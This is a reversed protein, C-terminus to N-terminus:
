LIVENFSMDLDYIEVRNRGNNKAKYLAIDVDKLIERCSNPAKLTSSHYLGASVTKTIVVDDDLVFKHDSINERCIEAVKMAEELSVRNLLVVFEEGGTRYIKDEERFSNKLLFAVDVLVKDGADHGYTDNVEKFWDIDFLLVAFDLDRKQSNKVLNRIDDELSFRNRLGTLSDHNALKALKRNAEQLHLTRIEVTQELSNLFEEKDKSLDFIHKAMPQFIFIVELLLVFLTFVLVINELNEIFELDSEGEKQYQNVVLNLDRLIDESSVAITATLLNIEDYTQAKAVSRILAVYEQVRKALNMEGFYMSFIKESLVVQTDSFIKGGSLMQNAKLMEQSKSEISSIILNKYTADYLKDSQFTQQLKYADLALRQSLMRQKGSINVIYAVGHSNSLAIKLIVFASISLLAIIGLAIIYKRTISVNLQKPNIKM